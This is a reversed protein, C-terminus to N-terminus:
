LIFGNAVFRQIISSKSLKFINFKQKNNAVFCLRMVCCLQGDATCLLYMSQSNFLVSKVRLSPSGVSFVIICYM